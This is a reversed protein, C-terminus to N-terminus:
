PTPVVEAQGLGLQRALEAAQRRSSVELKTLIAAVHHDVTRVSVFLREAIEANTMGQAVLELVDLQRATLGAPNARTTPRPGRPIQRVGHLRLLERVRGAAAEAALEDLISLAEFLAATDDAHALADAQEYPCGLAAWATAAATWDGALEHHVATLVGDPVDVREGVRALWRALEGIAALESTHEILAYTERLLARQQDLTGELEAQVARLVAAPVLRQREGTQEAEAVYRRVTDPAQPLGRRVHVSALAYLANLDNVPTSQSGSLVSTALAVADDWRGREFELRSRVGTLYGLVSLVEHEDAWASGLDLYHLAEDYRRLEVATEALNAYGVCVVHHHGGIRALEIGREATPLGDQRHSYYITGLTILATALVDDEGHQEAVEAAEKGWRVANDSDWIVMARMARTALTDALDRGPPLEAAAEMAEALSRDGAEPQGLAWYTHALFRSVRAVGATDGLKRYLDLGRVAVEIADHLDATQVATGSWLEFIEAREAPEFRDALPGIREFHALAERHASYRVAQRAAAQGFTAIADADGIEVAHHVIVAPDADQAVLADLLVRHLEMSRVTPIQDAVAQRAIEHRFAVWTRDAELMQRQEPEAAAIMWGPSCVDLVSRDVRGPSVAVLELLRRSVPALRGVRTLVADAVSWPVREPSALVESLFFPNGGTLQYLKEASGTALQRVADLSLPELQVRVAAQPPVRSLVRLLPQAPDLEESRYSLVVLGPVADLRRVLFTILDLTAVDAWHLDEVVLIVPGPPRTLEALVLGFLQDPPAGEALMTALESSVSGAMDLLPGLARPTSLDDCLGHLVRAEPHRELFARVLSTKGIGAEGSVLAVRGRGAAAAVLAGDLAALHQDRELLDV